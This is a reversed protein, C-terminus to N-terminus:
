WEGFQGLKFDIDRRKQNIRSGALVENHVLENRDSFGNQNHSRRNL